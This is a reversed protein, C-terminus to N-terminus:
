RTTIAPEGFAVTRGARYGQMRGLGLPPIDRDEAPSIKERHHETMAKAVADSRGSLVLAVSPGSAEPDCRRRHEAHAQARAENDLVRQQVAILFGVWWDARFREGLEAAYAASCLADAQILLSAFLLEARELDSQYGWAEFGLYAESGDPKRLSLVECGMAKAIIHVLDVKYAIEPGTLGRRIRVIRGNGLKASLMAETVGYDAILREAMERWAAGEATGEMLVASGLLKRIRGLVKPGPTTSM